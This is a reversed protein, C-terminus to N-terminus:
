GRMSIRKLAKQDLVSIRRGSVKLVNESAFISLTRIANSTTMNSFSALDERSLYVNITKGDEAFGYTEVLVLLTEALRGRIHKQSLSVTRKDSFGLEKAFRKIIALGFESNKRILKDLLRREIIIVISDELAVASAIYFDDAFLARFGIIAEPRAMRIIQDRGGVGERFIKVKGTCLFILGSPKDGEKYIIENKKFENCILRKKLLEIQDNKLYQFISEKSMLFNLCGSKNQM